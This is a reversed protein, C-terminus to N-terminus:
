EAATPHVAFTRDLDDKTAGMTIAIAAAQIIEPADAGLMHLGLVRRSGREIVLKIFTQEDRGSLTHRLPRSKSIFVEVDLGRARAVDEGLGIAALPPQGFVATPILDHVIPTPRHGFVTDAFAHGERIAIPTLAIRGTVDGVAYINAVSSRSWQDVLVAGRP